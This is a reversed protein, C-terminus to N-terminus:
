WEPDASRDDAAQSEALQELIREVPVFANSDHSDMGPCPTRQRAEDWADKSELNESWFPWTRCQSPRTEYLSCFAKGPKSERDLFVCDYGFRTHRERLSLKGNIRRAFTKLFSPYDMSLKAAMAKGEDEEFWVAGPPGTCCNGCMSCSFSLGDKYWLGKGPEESSEDHVSVDKTM